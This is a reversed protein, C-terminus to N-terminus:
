EVGYSSSSDKVLHNRDIELRMDCKRKEGSDEDKVLIALVIYVGRLEILEEIADFEADYVQKWTLEV